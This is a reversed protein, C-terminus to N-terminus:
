IHWIGFETVGVWLMIIADFIAAGIGWILWTKQTKKFHEVSEWKRSQWAWENGKMGLIIGIAIEAAWGLPGLLFSLMYVALGYVAFNYRKNGLAWIWGLLSAGWNWGRIEAPVIASSGQGSSNEPEMASSRAKELRM